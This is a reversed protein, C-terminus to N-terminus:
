LRWLSQLWLYERLISSVTQTFSNGNLLVSTHDVDSDIYRKDPCPITRAENPHSRSTRCTSTEIGNGSSPGTNWVDLWLIFFQELTFWNDSRWCKEMTGNNRRYNDEVRNGIANTASASTVSPKLINVLTEGHSTLYVEPIDNKSETLCTQNVSDQCVNLATEDEQM